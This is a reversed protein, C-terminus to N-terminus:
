PQPKPAPVPVPSSPVPGTAGASIKALLARAKRGPATDAGSAVVEELVRREGEKDGTKELLGAKNLLANQLASGSLKQASIHADTLAIMEDWKSADGLEVMKTSYNVDAILERFEEVQGTANASDLAIVEEMEARYFRAGLNGPLAPIGEVLKQAKELGTKTGAEAFAKDRKVRAQRLEELGSAYDAPPRPQFGTVAYPRGIDDTLIVAPFGSVRYVRMLMENAHKEIDPQQRYRPYELRALVFKGTVAEVFEGANLIKDDFVQCMPIWDPATFLVLLDKQEAKAKTLAAEYSLWRADVPVAPTLKKGPQPLPAGAEPAPKPQDQAAAPQDWLAVALLATFLAHGTLSHGRAARSPPNFCRPLATM